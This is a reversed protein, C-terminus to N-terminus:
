NTASTVNPNEVQETTTDTDLNNVESPNDVTNEVQQESLNQSVEAANSPNAFNAVFGDLATYTNKIRSAEEAVRDIFGTSNSGRHITVAANQEKNKGSIFEKPDQILKWQQNDTRVLQVKKNTGTVMGFAQALAQAKNTHSLAWQDLDTLAAELLQPSQTAVGREVLKIYDNLGRTALSPM